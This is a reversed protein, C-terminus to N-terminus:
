LSSATQWQYYYVRNQPLKVQKLHKGEVTNFYTKRIVTDIEYGQLSNQFFDMQMVCHVHM